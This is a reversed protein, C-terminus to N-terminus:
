QWNFNFKYFFPSSLVIAIRSTKNYGLFIHFTSQPVRNWADVPAIGLWFLLILSEPSLMQYLDNLNPHTIARHNPCEPVVCAEQTRGLRHLNSVPCREVGVTWWGRIWRKTRNLGCYKEVVTIILGIVWVRSCNTSPPVNAEGGGPDGADVETSSFIVPFLSYYSWQKSATFTIYIVAPLALCVGCYVCVLHFHYVKNLFFVTEISPKFSPVHLFLVSVKRHEVPVPETLMRYIKSVRFTPLQCAQPCSWM